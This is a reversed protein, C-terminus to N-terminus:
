ELSLDSDGGKLEFKFKIAVLPFTKTKDKVKVSNKVRYNSEM